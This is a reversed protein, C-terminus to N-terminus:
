APTGGPGPAPPRLLWASSHGFVCEVCMSCVSSALLLGDLGKPWSWLADCHPCCTAAGQGAPVSPKTTSSHAELTWLSSKSRTKPNQVPMSFWNATSVPKAQDTRLFLLNSKNRVYPPVPLCCVGCVCKWKIQQACDKHPLKDDHARCLLTHSQESCVSQLRHSNHIHTAWAVTEGKASINRICAEEVVYTCM